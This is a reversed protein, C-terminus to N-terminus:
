TLSDRIKTESLSLKRVWHISLLHGKAKSSAWHGYKQRAFVLDTFGKVKAESVLFISAWLTQTIKCLVVEVFKHRM